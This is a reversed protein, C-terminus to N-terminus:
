RSKVLSDGFRKKNDSETLESQVELVGELNSRTPIGRMSDFGFSALSDKRLKVSESGGMDTFDSWIKRFDSLNPNSTFLCDGGIMIKGSLDDIVIQAYRELVKELFNDVYAEECMLPAEITKKKGFYVAILPDNMYVLSGNAGLSEGSLNTSMCGYWGRM